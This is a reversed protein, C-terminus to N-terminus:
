WERQRRYSSNAIPCTVQCETSNSGKTKQIQTQVSHLSAVAGQAHLLGVQVLCMCAHVRACMGVSGAVTAVAAAASSCAPRAFVTWESLGCGNSYCCGVRVDDSVNNKLNNTQKVSYGLPGSTQTRAASCSPSSDPDHFRLAEWAPLAFRLCLPCPSGMLPHQRDALLVCTNYVTSIAHDAACM